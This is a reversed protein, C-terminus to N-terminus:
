MQISDDFLGSLNMDTLDKKTGKFPSKEVRLAQNEM